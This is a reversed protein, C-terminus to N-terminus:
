ELTSRSSSTIEVKLVRRTSSTALSDSSARHGALWVIKEQNVLVPCRNRVSRDIKHDIFYKKIKQTGTMGSPSFRDGPKISRLVLPFTLRDMDLLVVQRGTKIEPLGAEFCIESFTLVMNIEAIIVSFVEASRCIRYFFPQPQCGMKQVSNRCGKDLRSFSLFDKDRHVRIGDPLTYQVPYRCHEIMELSAEIHSFSIKQLNGKIRAIAARVIRRQAAKHCQKLVPVSTVVQWATEHIVAKEFVPQIVDNMWQDESRIIESIRNLTEVIGPNCLTQIYPITEHRIRNRLFRMDDNSKDLQYELGNENLFAILENRTIHLLPRVIRNERVPPIGSLGLPGSGRFLFMLVLEANDDRHHGTAIKRYGHQHCTRNLFDYRVQRAAEELSLHRSIQYDRVNVRECHCDLNLRDAVDAIVEADKDSDTGRLCHNLHAVGITWEWKPALYLLLHLLAM